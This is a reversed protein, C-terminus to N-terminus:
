SKDTQKIKLPQKWTVAEVAMAEEADMNVDKGAKLQRM